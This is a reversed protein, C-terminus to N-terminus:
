QPPLTIEVTQEGSSLGIRVPDRAPPNLPRRSGRFGWVEYSGAPLLPYRFSGDGIRQNNLTLVVSGPLWEGNWRMAASAMVPKKEGDVFNIVLSAAPQPVVVRMPKGDAAIVHVPAFSGEAPIVFLTKTEGSRIRLHLQGAANTAGMWAVNFGDSRVGEMVTANAVPEGSPWFFNIVQETGRSLPFDATKSEDQEGIEITATASIHDPADASLDYTGDRTAAVSYTGDDSILVPAGSSSNTAIFQMELSAQPIVEKTEEDFVRGRILRHKFSIDWAAPDGVLAPPRDVPLNGTEKSGVWGGIDERQWMPGGFLGEADIKTDGRWTRHTDYVAVIGSRVPESGFHVSGQLVFPSLRIEESVDESKIPIATTLHELVGDGSLTLYYTGESVDAFVLDDDGAKLERTAISTNEYQSKSPETLRVHLTKSKASEARNLHVTLKVGSSLTIVGLDTDPSIINLPVVRTGFGPSMIMIEKTEPEDTVPEALEARFAGQENTSTLLKGNGRALQAGAVATERPRQDDGTKKMTVVRGSVAPLPALTILNIAVDEAGIKLPRHDGKHHEAGIRMTYSGRPLRISMPKEILKAPVSWRWFRDKSEIVEFRTEVPWQRRANGRVSLTVKRADKSDLDITVAKAALTGLVVRSADSSMWVFRREADAPKVEFTSGSAPTCDTGLCITGKPSEAAILSSASLMLIFILNKMQREYM